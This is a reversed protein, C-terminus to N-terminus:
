RRAPDQQGEPTVGRIEDVEGDSLAFRRTRRANGPPVFTILRMEGSSDPAPRVFGGPGNMASLSSFLFMFLILILRNFM